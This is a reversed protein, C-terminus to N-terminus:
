MNSTVSRREIKWTMVLRLFRSKHCHKRMRLRRQVLLVIFHSLIVLFALRYIALTLFFKARCIRRNRDRWSKMKTQIFFWNQPRPRGCGVAVMFANRSLQYPWLPKMFPGGKWNGLLELRFWIDAKRNAHATFRRLGEEGRGMLLRRLHWCRLLPRVKVVRRRNRRVHPCSILLDPLCSPLDNFRNATMFAM